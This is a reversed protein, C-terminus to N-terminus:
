LNMLVHWPKLLFWVTSVYKNRETELINIDRKIEDIRFSDLDEDTFRPLSEVSATALSHHDEGEGDVEMKNEEVASATTTSVPQQQQEAALARVTRLFDLEEEEHQKRLAEGEKRWHTAAASLEKMEASIRDFDVHLDVEAAKAKQVQANIENYLQSSQALVDELAALQTKASEVAQVVLLADNEMEKQEEVLEGLKEEAKVLDAEAKERAVRAKEAQKRQNSEEVEKTSLSSSVMEIQSVISDVRAQAKALKPGGFSLIQRQLSAVEQQIARLDPAVRSIVTELEELRQEHATLESQEKATFASETQLARLKQQLEREQEDYRSLAMKCKEVDLQATKLGDQLAALEHELHAKQRRVEALDSQLSAIAREEQALQEPSLNEEDDEQAAAASTSSKSGRAAGKGAKQQNANVLKMGGKRVERGGGSMAGSTDIVQGDLTVVRYQARDGVYAIRVATELDKAVLTDKLAMYFAGYLDESVVDQLLDFLRPATAADPGRFPRRMRERYEDMLSLVIFSARGINMKRLYAVCMQAGEPTEVVINDLSGCATTVAVDYEPPITALDGLRGRVGASSLAGGLRAAKLIQEVTKNSSSQSQKAAIQARHQELTVVSERIQEQLQKEQQEVQNLTATLKQQQPRFIDTEYRTAAQLKAQETERSKQLTQYKEETIALTKLVKEPRSRILQISNSVLDKESQVESAAKESEALRQQGAELAARLDATGEQLSEMIKSLAAEEEVKKNEFDALANQYKVLQAKAAEAETVCEAEKKAEKTVLGQFKKINAKTHKMDEQLKVDKREFADYQKAISFLTLVWLHFIISASSVTTSSHLDKEIKARESKVSEYEKEIEARKKDAGEKDIKLAQLKETVKDLKSKCEQVNEASTRENLQCLINKKRRINKEKEIYAEAEVKSDLLNDRDKEAIKLRNVKEM